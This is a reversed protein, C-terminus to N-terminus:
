SVTRWPRFSRMSRSGSEFHDAFGTIASLRDLTACQFPEIDDHHVQRHRPQASHGGCAASAAAVQDGITLRVRWASWVKRSPAIARPRM